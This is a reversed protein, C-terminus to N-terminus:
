QIGSSNQLIAFFLEVGCVWGGDVTGAVDRIPGWLRRWGDFTVDEFTKTSGGPSLTLSLAGNAGVHNDMSTLYSELGDDTSFSHHIWMDFIFPRAGPGGMLESVGIVGPFQNRWTQLDVVERGPSGYTGYFEFNGHKLQM